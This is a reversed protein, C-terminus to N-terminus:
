WRAPLTGLSDGNQPQSRSHPVAQDGRSATSYSAATEPPGGLRELRERSTLWAANDLVQISGRQKDLSLGTLVEVWAAVRDLDDPLEVPTRFLRATSDESGSLITKGDPSFAV